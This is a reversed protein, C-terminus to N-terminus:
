KTENTLEKLDNVPIYGQEILKNWFTRAQAVPYHGNAYDDHHPEENWYRKNDQEVWKHVQVNGDGADEHPQTFSYAVGTGAITPTFKLFHKM